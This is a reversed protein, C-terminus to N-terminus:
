VHPISNYEWTQISVALILLVGRYYTTSNYYPNTTEMKTAIHHETSQLRGGTDESIIAVHCFGKSHISEIHLKPERPIYQNRVM